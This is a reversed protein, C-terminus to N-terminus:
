HSAEIMAVWTCGPQHEITSLTPGRGACHACVSEDTEDDLWADDPRDPHPSGSWEEVPPEEESILTGHRYKLATGEESGPFMERYAEIGEPTLLWWNLVRPTAKGHLPRMLGAEVAPRYESPPGLGLWASELTKRDRLAFSEYRRRAEEMLREVAVRM